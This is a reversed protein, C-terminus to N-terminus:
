KNEERPSNISNYILAYTICLMVISNYTFTNIGCLFVIIMHMLLIRILILGLFYFMQISNWANNNSLLPSIKPSGTYETPSWTTWHYLIWRGICTIQTRDRAQSSGRSFSIAVEELIRAQSIGHVSSGPTSCEM